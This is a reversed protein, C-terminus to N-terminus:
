VKEVQSDFVRSVMERDRSKSFGLWEGFQDNRQQQIQARKTESVTHATGPKEGILEYEFTYPNFQMTITKEGVPSRVKPLLFETKYIDGGFDDSRDRWLNIVVSATQAIASSDKFSDLTPKEGRLKHYHALLVIAVDYELALTKIRQMVEELRDAKSDKSGNSTNFFHLHDIGFLKIGRMASIAIVEELTDMDMQDPAHEHGRDYLLLRDDKIQDMAKLRDANFEDKLRITNNRFDKWPFNKLDRQKRVKGIEFYLQKMAFENVTDELSFFVVEHKRANRKLVSTLFTTKGTGTEGGVLVLEGPYIGGLHDDLPSYGFSFIKAPDITDMYKATEEIIDGMRKFPLTTFKTALIGYKKELWEKAKAYNCNLYFQVIKVCGGKRDKGSPSYVFNGRSSIFGSTEKGNELIRQSGDHLKRYTVTIGKTAAVDRLVTAIDLSDITKQPATDKSVSPFYKELEDLNYVYQSEDTFVVQCLYPDGKRHEFNPLRLVRALDYVADGMGGHKMSWDVIGQMVKKAQLCTTKDMATNVRWLPQLGNRTDIVYTPPVHAQLASLLAFKRDAIVTASVGEDQKCVDLDGYVFNIKELYRENRNQLTKNARHEEATVSRFSNPTFYIGWDLVNYKKFTEEDYKQFQVAGPVLKKDHIRVYVQNPFKM